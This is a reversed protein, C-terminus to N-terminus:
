WGGGDTPTLIGCTTSSLSAQVSPYMAPPTSAVLPNKPGTPVQRVIVLRPRAGSLPYTSEQTGM